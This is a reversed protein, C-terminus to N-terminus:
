HNRDQGSNRHARIPALVFHLMPTRLSKKISTLSQLSELESIAIARSNLFNWKTSLTLVSIWESESLSLKTTISIPYLAKLLNRFDVKRIEAPLAITRTASVNETKTMILAYLKFKKEFYRSEQAFIHSPVRFFCNEVEFVAFASSFYFDPDFNRRIVPTDPSATAPQVVQDPSPGLLAELDDM